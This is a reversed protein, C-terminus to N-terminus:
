AEENVAIVDTLEEDAILSNIRKEEARCTHDKRKRSTNADCSGQMKKDTMRLITDYGNSDTEVNEDAEEEVRENRLAMHADRSDERQHCEKEHFSDDKTHRAPSSTSMPSNRRKSTDNARERQPPNMVVSVKVKKDSPGHAGKQQSKTQANKSKGVKKKEKQTA